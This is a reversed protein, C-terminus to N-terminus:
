ALELLLVAREDPAEVRQLGLADDGRRADGLELALEVLGPPPELALEVLSPLVQLALEVRRRLSGARDDGLAVLEDHPDGLELALEALRRAPDALELLLLARE